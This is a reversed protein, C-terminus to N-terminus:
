CLALCLYVKNGICLKRCLLYLVYRLSVDILIFSYILVIVHLSFLKTSFQFMTCRVTFM